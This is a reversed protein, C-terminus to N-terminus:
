GFPMKELKMGNRMIVCLRLVDIFSKKNGTLSVGKFMQGDLTIKNRVKKM